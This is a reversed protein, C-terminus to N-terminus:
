AFSPSEISSPKFFVISLMFFALLSVSARVEACSIKPVLPATSIVFAIRSPRKLTSSRQAEISSYLVVTSSVKLAVNSGGSLAATAKFLKFIAPASKPFVIREDRDGMRSFITLFILSNVFCNEVRLLLVLVVMTAIPPIVAAIPGASMAKPLIAFPTVAATFAILVAFAAYVAILAATEENM